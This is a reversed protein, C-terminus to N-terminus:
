ARQPPSRCPPLKPPKTLDPPDSPDSPDSPNVPRLALQRRQAPPKPRPPANEPIQRHRLRRAPTIQPPTRLISAAHGAAALRAAMIGANIARTASRSEPIRM